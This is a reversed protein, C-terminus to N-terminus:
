GVPLSYPLLRVKVLTHFQTSNIAFYRKDVKYMSHLLYYRGFLTSLPVAAGARLYVERAPVARGCSREGARLSRM